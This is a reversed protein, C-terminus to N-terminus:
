KLKVNWNIGYKGVLWGYYITTFIQIELDSAFMNPKIDGDAEKIDKLFDDDKLANNYLKTTMEM